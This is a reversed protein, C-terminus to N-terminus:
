ILPYSPYLFRDEKHPRTFLLGLWLILSITLSILCLEHDKWSYYASSQVHSARITGTPPKPSVNVTKGDSTHLMATPTLIPRIAHNATNISSVYYYHLIFGFPTLLVTIPWSIGM